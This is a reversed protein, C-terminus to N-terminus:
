GLTCSRASDLALVAESGRWAQRGCLAMLRNLKCWHPAPAWFAAQAHFTPVGIAGAETCNPPPQPYHLGVANRTNRVRGEEGARRQQHDSGARGRQSGRSWHGHTDWRFRGRSAPVDRERTHSPRSLAGPSNTATTNHAALLLLIECRFFASSIDGGGSAVTLLALDHPTGVEYDSKKDRAVDKPSPCNFDAKYFSQPLCTKLLARVSLKVRAFEPLPLRYQRGSADERQLQGFQTHCVVEDSVRCSVM